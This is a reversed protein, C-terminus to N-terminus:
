DEKIQKKQLDSKIVTLADLVGSDLSQTFNYSSETVKLKPDNTIKLITKYYDIKGIADELGQLWVISVVNKHNDNLVGENFNKFLWLNRYYAMTEEKFITQNGNADEEFSEYSVDKILDYVGYSTCGVAKIDNKTLSLVRTLVSDPTYYCRPFFHAIIDGKSQEVGINLKKGLSIRENESKIKFYKINSCEKPIIDTVKKYKMDSPTDDVIVWELKDVPYNLNLFSIVLLFMYPSTEQDCYVPTVLSVFPLNNRRKRYKRINKTTEESFTYLSTDPHQYKKIENSKPPQIIIPTRAAYVKCNPNLHFNETFNYRFKKNVLFATPNKFTFNEYYFKSDEKVNGFEKLEFSLLIVDWDKPPEPLKSPSFQFDCDKRFLLIHGKQTNAGKVAHTWTGIEMNFDFKKKMRKLIAKKEDKNIRNELVCVSDDIEIM